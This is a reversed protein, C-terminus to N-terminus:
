VGRVKAALTELWMYAKRFTSPSVTAGHVENGVFLGEDKRNRPRIVNVNPGIEANMVVFTEGALLEILKMRMKYTVKM